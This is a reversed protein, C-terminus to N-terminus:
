ATTPAAATPKATSPESERLRNSREIEALSGELGLARRQNPSMGGFYGVTIRHEFAHELCARRAACGECMSRAWRGLGSGAPTFFLDLDQEALRACAADDLWPLEQWAAILELLPETDDM